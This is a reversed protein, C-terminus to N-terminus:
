LKYMGYNRENGKIIFFFMVRYLVVMGLLIALNVWKSYNMEIQWNNRLIYEGTIIHRKGGEHVYYSTGLFENKYLGQLAYKHFAINYVVCKWFLKPMSHPKVFFGAGLIMFGQIGSGLIIGMLFNPVVSAVIMMLSEVLMMCIFVVLSYYAFHKVDNRLRTLYYSIAGPILSVLLLYPTASFTNGLVFACTGYNGNLRERKFVQFIFANSANWWVISLLFVIYLHQSKLLIKCSWM